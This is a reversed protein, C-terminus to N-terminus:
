QIEPKPRQLKIRIELAKKELRNKLKKSVPTDADYLIDQSQAFTNSVISEVNAKRAQPPADIWLNNDGLELIQRKLELGGKEKKDNAIRLLEKYEDDAMDVTVDLNMPKDNVDLQMKRTFTRPPKQSSAGSLILIQTAKDEKGTTTSIPKYPNDYEAVENFINVKVSEGGLGIGQMMENWGQMFGAVGVPLDPDIPYEAKMPDINKAAYRRAASAPITMNGFTTVAWSAFTDVTKSAVDKQSQNFKPIFQAANGFASIVPWELLYDYLGLSAAAATSLVGDDQMNSSQEYYMSGMAALVSFTSMGVHSMYLKGAYEGSGFSYTYAQGFKSEALAMKEQETFGSTDGIDAVISFPQWGQELMLKRQKADDPGAGTLQGNATMTAATAIIGTGIGVKTLALDRKMYDGSHIDDMIKQKTKDLNESFDKLYKPAAKGAEVLGVGSEYILKAPTRELSQVMDNIPTNIFPVKIKLLKSWWVPQSTLDNLIRAASGKEGKSELTWIRAEDIVNEPPNSFVEQSAQVYAEYAKDADKTTEMALQQAELGRRTALGELGMQYHIGKMFESITLVSRGGYSAAFNFASLAVKGVPNMNPDIDFFDPRIKTELRNISAGIGSVKNEWAYSAAKLGNVIGEDFSMVQSLAEQAYRRNGSGLNVMSRVAGVVAAGLTEAPRLLIRPIDGGAIRLLTGPGSVLGSVYLGLFRDTRGTAVADIMDVQRTPDNKMTFYKEFFNVLDDQSKLGDITSEFMKAGPMEMGLIGFSQAINTKYGKVSRLVLSNFSIAKVAGLMEEPSATGDIIKKGLTDLQRASWEEAMLIKYSNEPTVDVNGGTLREIFSEDFGRKKIQDAVDAFSITKTDIGALETIADLAPALDGARALNFVQNPPLLREREARRIEAIEESTKGALEEETAIPLAQLEAESKQLQTALEEGTIVPEQAMLENVDTKAAAPVMEVETDVAPAINDIANLEPEIAEDVSQIVPANLSETSDVIDQNANVDDAINEAKAPVIPKQVKRGKITEIVPFEKQSSTAKDVGQVVTGAKEGIEKASKKLSPVIGKFLKGAVDIREGTFSSDETMQNIKNLIDDAM